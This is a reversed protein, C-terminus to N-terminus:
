EGRGDCLMGQPVREPSRPWDTSCRRAETQAEADEGETTLIENPEMELEACLKELLTFNIRSTRGNVAKNVNPWTSGVRMALQNVNIYKEAMRKRIAVTNLRM